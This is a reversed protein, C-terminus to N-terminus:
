TFTCCRGGRGGRCVCTIDLSFLNGDPPLRPRRPAPVTTTVSRRKGGPEGVVEIVRRCGRTLTETGPEGAEM